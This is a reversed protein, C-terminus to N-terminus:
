CGEAYHFTRRVMRSMAGIIPIENPREAPALDGNAAPHIAGWPLQSM